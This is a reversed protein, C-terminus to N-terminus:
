ETESFAYAAECVENSYMFFSLLVSDGIKSRKHTNKTELPLM